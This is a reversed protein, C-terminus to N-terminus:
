ASIKVIVRQLLLRISYATTARVVYCVDRLTRTAKEAFIKMFRATNEEDLAELHVEGSEFDEVLDYLYRERNGLCKSGETIMEWHIVRLYARQELTLYIFRM